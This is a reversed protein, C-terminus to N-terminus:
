LPKVLIDFLQESFFYSIIFGIVVSIVCAILRKRLEELHSTFPIKDDAM